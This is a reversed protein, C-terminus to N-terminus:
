QARLALAPDVKAARWAPAWCAIGSVAVLLVIVGLYTVPDLRSVGFLLTVIAESSAVAGALGILIGAGTLAMGQRVVMSLINVRSAGLASRVGIERIRESVSGSLVGYIGTASLLLAALAFAELVIMTFRRKSESVALLDAMESVRVVPQDKDVSWIANKIAPTLAAVNGHARVVLSLATDVFWSQAATIYVAAPQSEALSTQKVDGVVGVVMYWPRDTPGIHVRQGIPDQEHFETKALSESILVSSPATDTDHADLFRGRRLAIGMTQFYGPTVVYRFVDYGRKESHEFQAGYSQSEGGSFPLLSTFAAATVTPVHRVAELAQAVFQHRASDDDFRHGSEQVEMSLLGSVNFGPAVAFLRQLSRLILGASALLMLALAVEAIVLLRRTWQHDGATRRSTQHIGIQLDGRSAHIAPILGVLLGVFMTIGLSFLFVAGDVAIANVRPLEPPSLAVLTRVGMEAVGMGLVGGVFALLLSETLLHRILRSRGAGLASRMAYEGREQAGRALLLNTVNVCAILLLLVVAGLVAFLAPKVGRTVEGQLSNVILGHKLSAWPPRPFESIPAHAIKAMEQRAADLRVGPRLRGVMRLHHGWEGTDFSRINTADYQLPSWLEASPALVNDFGKPMVGIVTYSDGDLKIPRGLIMTDGNFRRRWLKDSLIVVRPGKFQDDAQEFDRGVVPRVGLVRFYNASVSQGDLREPAAAGTLAPRWPEQAEMVAMSDFSRNRAAVERFTHFTVDSRAGQFIDWIMTVRSPSPYPLPEFLIPNVASFIATSAGIGLALTVASVITFGASKRLRRAAYRLDALITEVVHEWGYSRVQERIATGHGLELRTTRRAEDIPVGRAVLTAVAQELYYEVEDGINRDAAKRNM